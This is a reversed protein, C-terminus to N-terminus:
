AFGDVTDGGTSGAPAMGETGNVASVVPTNSLDRWDSLWKRPKM